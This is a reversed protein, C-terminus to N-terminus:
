GMGYKKMKYRLHRESMGLLAAARTKVQGAKELADRIMEQEMVRVRGEFSGAPPMPPMNGEGAIELGIINVPLDRSSLMEGRALVVAREIINELERINGPYHYRMLANMAEKSIGRVAKRNLDAYKRVFHDVLPPIDGRRDRLPPITLSIVNIRYYFDDRLTTDELMKELNRNTAAILRVDVHITRSGGVREFAREQLVRLLKVQVPPPIEGIEDLFLTGGDATEFRGRRLRDAGTFAGREHGFLESELLNQSLAACNVAVFPGERRPSAYHIARAVLEKGTGSEGRILVTAQSPAARAATNLVEDMQPSSSVIGEFRFKEQLLRKLERNESVLRRRQLAKEVLLELHDLSVPKTLYDAAGAKMAEIASEITGYATMIVVDIEPNIKKVEELVRIGDMDPMKYDSLVLDLPETEALKVALSGLGAELVRYGKKRLFGALATRQPEEDDVVLITSDTETM